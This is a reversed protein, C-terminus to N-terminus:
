KSKPRLVEAVAKLLSQGPFPKTFYGIAGAREAQTRSDQDDYATIFIVPSDAGGQALRKQLEFGSMGALHVDLIFCAAAGAAGAELLAEGSTFTQTQFGGANLLREIAQNMGSDDDVVVVVLNQNEDPMRYRERYNGRGANSYQKVSIM